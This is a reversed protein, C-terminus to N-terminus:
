GLPQPQDPSQNGRAQEYQNTENCGDIPEGIPAVSSVIGPQLMVISMRRLIRTIRRAPDSRRRESKRRITRKRVKACREKEPFDLAELNRRCMSEDALRAM